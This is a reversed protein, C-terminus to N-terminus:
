GVERLSAAAGRQKSGGPRPFRHVCAGVWRAPYTPSWYPVYQDRSSEAKKDVQGLAPLLQKGMQKAKGQTSSQCTQMGSFALQKLVTADWCLM